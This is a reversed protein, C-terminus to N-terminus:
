SLAHNVEEALAELGVDDLLEIVGDWDQSYDKPKKNIFYEAFTEKLCESPDGRCKQEIVSTVNTDKSLLSAIDKWKHSAKSIIRVKKKEGGKVTYKLILLASLDTIIVFNIYQKIIHMIMMTHTHM